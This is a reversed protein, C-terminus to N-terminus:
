AVANRPIVGEILYGSLRQGGYRTENFFSIPMEIGFPARADPIFHVSEIEMNSIEVVVEFTAGEIKVRGNVTRYDTGPM